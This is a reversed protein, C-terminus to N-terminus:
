SAAAVVMVMPPVACKAFTTALRACAYPDFAAAAQGLKFRKYGNWGYPIGAGVLCLGFFGAAVGLGSAVRFVVAGLAVAITLNVVFYLALLKPIRSLTRARRKM